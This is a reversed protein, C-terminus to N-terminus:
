PTPATPAILELVRTQPPYCIGIDACGQYRVQVRHPTPATKPWAFDAVLTTGRYIEVDGFHEDHHSIGKPLQVPPLETVAPDLLKFQLRKRYLYHGPAVEWSVRLRKGDYELPMIRFADDVSLITDTNGSNTFGGAIAMPAFLVTVALLLVKM